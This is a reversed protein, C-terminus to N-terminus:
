QNKLHYDFASFVNEYSLHMNYYEFSAKKKNLHDLSHPDLLKLYNILQKLGDCLYSNEPNCYTYEPGHTNNKLVMVPVGYSFAHVVGLGISSPSFYVIAGAFHKLLETEDFTSPYFSVSDEINFSSVMKLLTQKYEGDGVIRLKLCLEKLFPFIIEIQKREQIRGVYLLYKTGDTMQYNPVLITNKAVSIKKSPYGFKLLNQKGEDTYVVYGASLTLVAKRINNIIFNQNKWIGQGWFIWRKWPFFFIYIWTHFRRLNFTSIIIRKNILFFPNLFYFRTENRGIYRSLKKTVCSPKCDFKDDASVALVPGYQKIFWDIIFLRYNPIAFEFLFLTTYNKLTIIRLEKPNSVQPPTLHRTFPM